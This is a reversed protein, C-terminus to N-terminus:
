AARELREVRQRVKVIDTRLEMHDSNTLEVKIEIQDLRDLIEVRFAAERERAAAENARLETRFAEERTQSEAFLAMLRTLDERIEKLLPKTDYDKEVDTTPLKETLDNANM